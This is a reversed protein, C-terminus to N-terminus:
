KKRRARVVLLGGSLLAIAAVASNGDIEPVPVSLAFASSTVGLLAVIMGVIKM